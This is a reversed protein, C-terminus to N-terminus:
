LTEAISYIAMLISSKIIYLMKCLEGAVKM